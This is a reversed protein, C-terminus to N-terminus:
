CCGVHPLKLIPRTAREREDGRGRRREKRTMAQMKKQYQRGSSASHLTHSVLRDIMCNHGPPRSHYRHKTDVAMSSLSDMDKTRLAHPPLKRNTGKWAYEASALHMTFVNTVAAVWLACRPMKLSPLPRIHGHFSKTTSLTDKCCVAARNTMLIITHSKARQREQTKPDSFTPALQHQHHNQHKYREEDRPTSTECSTKEQSPM